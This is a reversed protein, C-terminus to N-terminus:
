KVYIRTGLSSILMDPEAMVQGKEQLLSEFLDLARGTNYVLRGGAPVAEECWWQSFAATGADDGIMTDDLDSVVLVPPAVAPKLQGDRLQWCGPHHITYNVGDPAKDWAELGDTIVFELLPVAEAAAPAAAAASGNSSSPHHHVHM